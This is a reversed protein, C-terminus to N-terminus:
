LHAHMHPVVTCDLLTHDGTKPDSQNRADGQAQFQLGVAQDNKIDLTKRNHALPPQYVQLAFAEGGRSSGEFQKEQLVRIPTYAPALSELLPLQHKM